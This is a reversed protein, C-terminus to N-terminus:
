GICGGARRQAAGCDVIEAAPRGSHELGDPRFRHDCDFHRNCASGQQQAAISPAPRPPPRAGCCLNEDRCARCKKVSLCAASASAQRQSLPTACRRDSQRCARSESVVRCRAPGIRSSEIAIRGVAAKSAPDMPWAMVPPGGAPLDALTIIERAKDGSAYVLLDGKDPRAMRTGQAWATRALPAGLGAALAGKLLTRRVLPVVAPLASRRERRWGARERCNWERCSVACPRSFLSDIPVSM